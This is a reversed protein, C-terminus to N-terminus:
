LALFSPRAVDRADPVHVTEKDMKSGKCLRMLPSVLLSMTALKEWAKEAVSAVDQEDVELVIHQTAFEDLDSCKDFKPPFGLPRVWRKGKSSPLVLLNEICWKLSKEIPWTAGQGVFWIKAM